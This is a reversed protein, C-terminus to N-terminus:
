SGLGGAGLRRGRGLGLGQGGLAPRAGGVDAIPRSRSSSWSTIAARYKSPRESASVAIARLRRRPVTFDRSDRASPPRSCPSDHLERLSPRGRAATPPAPRSARAAAQARIDHRRHQRPQRWTGDVAPRSPVPVSRERPPARRQRQQQGPRRSPQVTSRACAIRRIRPSRPTLISRSGCSGPRQWRAAFSPSPCGM